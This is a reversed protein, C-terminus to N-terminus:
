CYRCVCCVCCCFWFGFVVAAVIVCFFLKLVVLRCCCCSEQITVCHFGLEKTIFGHFYFNYSGIADFLKNCM